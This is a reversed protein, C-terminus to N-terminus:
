PWLASYIKILTFKRGRNCQFDSTKVENSAANFNLVIPDKISKYNGAKFYILM